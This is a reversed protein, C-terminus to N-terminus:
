ISFSLNNITMLLYDHTLPFNCDEGQTELVCSSQDSAPASYVQGMKFYPHTLPRDKAVKMEGYWPLVSYLLIIPAQIQGWVSRLTVGRALWKLERLQLKKMLLTLIIDDKGLSDNFPEILYTTYFVWCLAPAYDTAIFILHQGTNECPISEKCLSNIHNRLPKNIVAWFAYAEREM